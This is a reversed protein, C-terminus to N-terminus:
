FDMCKKLTEVVLIDDDCVFMTYDFKILPIVTRIAQFNTMNPCHIHECSFSLKNKFIFNSTEDFHFKDSSDGLLIQGNFNMSNLYFLYKIIFDSRNITPVVLSIM